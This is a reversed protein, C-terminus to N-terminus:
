PQILGLLVLKVKVAALDLDTENIGHVLILKDTENTGAGEIETLDNPDVYTNIALIGSTNRDLVERNTIVPMEPQEESSKTYATGMLDDVSSWGAAGLGYAVETGSAIVQPTDYPDFTIYVKTINEWKLIFPHKTAVAGLYYRAKFNMTVNAANIPNARFHWEIPRAGTQIVAYYDKDNIKYIDQGNLVGVHVGGSQNTPTEPTTETGVIWGVVGAGASFVMLLIVFLAGMQRKDWKSKKKANKEVSKAM